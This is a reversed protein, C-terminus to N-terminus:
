TKCSISGWAGRVLPGAQQCGHSCLCSLLALWVGGSHVQSGKSGCSGTTRPSSLSQCFEALCSSGSCPPVPSKGQCSCVAGPFGFGAQTHVALLSTCVLLSPGHALSSPAPSTCLPQPWDTQVFGQKPAKFQHHAFESKHLRTGQGM